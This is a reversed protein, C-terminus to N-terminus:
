YFYLILWKNKEERADREAERLIMQYLFNIAQGTAVDSEESRNVILRCKKALLEYHKDNFTNM